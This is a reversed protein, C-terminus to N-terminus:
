LAPWKLLDNRARLITLGAEANQEFESPQLPETDGNDLATLERLAQPDIARLAKAAELRVQPRKAGSPPQRHVGPAGRPALFPVM